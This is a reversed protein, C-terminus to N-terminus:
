TWSPGPGQYMLKPAQLPLKVIRAPQMQHGLRRHAVLSDFNCSEILNVIKTFGHAARDRYQHALMAQFLGNRRHAPVVYSNNTYCVDPPLDALEFYELPRRSFMHMAGSRVWSYGVVGEASEAVYGVGRAAIQEVVRREDGQRLALMAEVDNGRAVRVEVPLCPEITEVPATLDRECFLIEYYRLGITAASRSAFRRAFSPQYFESM